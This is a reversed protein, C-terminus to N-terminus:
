QLPPAGNQDSTHVKLDQAAPVEHLRHMVGEEAHEHTKGTQPLEYFRLPPSLSYTFGRPYGAAIAIATADM